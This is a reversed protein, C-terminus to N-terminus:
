QIMSKRYKYMNQEELEILRQLYWAAKRLDQLGGKMKYRSVYKVINGQHYGLSLGEIAVITEMDGQTYHAPSNVPDSVRWGM